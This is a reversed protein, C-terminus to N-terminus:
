DTKNSLYKILTLKNGRSNYDIEDFASYIIKLGFGNYKGENESTEKKVSEMEKKWNFGNGEDEIEVKLKESCVVANIRVKKECVEKELIKMKLYDDYKGQKILKEKTARTIKLNGHEVANHIAEHLAVEIMHVSDFYSSILSVIEKVVVSLQNLDSCIEYARRNM